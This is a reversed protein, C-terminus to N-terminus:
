RYDEERDLCDSCWIEGDSNSGGGNSVSECKGCNECNRMELKELLESFNEIDLDLVIQAKEFIEEKLTEIKENIDWGFVVGDLLEFVIDIQAQSMEKIQTNMELAGKGIILQTHLCM